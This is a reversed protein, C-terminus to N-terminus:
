ERNDEKRAHQRIAQLMDYEYDKPMVVLKLGAAELLAEWIGPVKGLEGSLAKSVSMKHKGAKAGLQTQTMGSMALYERMATRIDDNMAKIMLQRGGKTNM